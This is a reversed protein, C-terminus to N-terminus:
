TEIASQECSPPWIGPECLFGLATIMAALALEKPLGSAARSCVISPACTVEAHQEARAVLERIITGGAQDRLEIATSHSASGPKNLCVSGDCCNRLDLTPASTM